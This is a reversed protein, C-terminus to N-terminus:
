FTGLRNAVLGTVKVSPLPGRDGEEGEGDPPQISFPSVLAVELDLFGGEGEEEEVGVEVDPSPGLELRMPRRPDKLRRLTAEFPLGVVPVGNVSLLVQGPAVVGSRAAPADAGAFGAVVLPPPPRRGQQGAQTPPLLLTPSPRFLIGATPESFTYAVHKYRGLGEDNDDDDDDVAVASSGAVPTPRPIPAAVTARLAEPSLRLHLVFPRQLRKIYPVVSALTVRALSKGNIGTLPSPPLLFSICPIRFHTSGDVRIHIYICIGGMGGAASWAGAWVAGTMQALHRIPFRRGTGEREAQAARAAAARLGQAVAGMPDVSRVVIRGFPSWRPPEQPHGPPLLAEDEPAVPDRVIDVHLGLPGSGAVTVAM